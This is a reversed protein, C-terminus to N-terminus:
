ATKAVEEAAKGSGPSRIRMLKRAPCANRSKGRDADFHKGGPGDRAEGSYVADLRDRLGVRSPAALGSRAWASARRAIIV